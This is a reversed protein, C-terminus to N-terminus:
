HRAALPPDAAILRGAGDVRGNVPRDPLDSAANM